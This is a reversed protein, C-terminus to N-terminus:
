TAITGLGEGLEERSFWKAKSLFKQLFFDQHWIYERIHWLELPLCAVKDVRSNRVVHLYLQYEEFCIPNGRGGM